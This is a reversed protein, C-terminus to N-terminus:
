LCLLSILSLFYIEVANIYAKDRDILIVSLLRIHCLKYLSRLRDLAWIYDQETKGSLFIFAIYFSQQCANVGIMNLLLM